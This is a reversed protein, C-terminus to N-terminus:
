PTEAQGRRRRKWPRLITLLFMAVAFNVVVTGAYLPVSSTSLWALAGGCLSLACLMFAVYYKWSYGSRVEDDSFTVYLLLLVSYFHAVPLMPTCLLFGALSARYAREVLDEAFTPQADLEAQTPPPEQMELVPPEATIAERPPPAKKAEIEGAFDALVAQARDLEAAPVLLEIGGTTYGLGIVNTSIDNAIIPNLGEDVLRNRALEAEVLDAFRTVTRLDASV